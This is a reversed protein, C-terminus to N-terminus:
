ISFFPLFKYSGIDSYSLTIFGDVLSLSLVFDMNVPNTTYHNAHEGRTRYIRPELEPQTLRFVIFM